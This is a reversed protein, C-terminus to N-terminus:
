TTLVSHQSGLHNGLTSDSIGLATDRPFAGPERAAKGCGKRFAEPKGVLGKKNTPPQAEGAVPKM